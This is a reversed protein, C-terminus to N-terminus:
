KTGSAQRLRAADKIYRAGEEAKDIGMLLEGLSQVLKWDDPALEVARRMAQEAEPMRGLRGYGLALARYAFPNDPAIRLTELTVAIGEETQASDGLDMLVLSLRRMTMLDNPNREFALRSAAIADAQREEDILWQVYEDQLNVFTPNAAATERYWADAEEVKRQGRLIRGVGCALADSIGHREITGRLLAEGEDYRELASLLWARRLDIGPQQAPVIGFGGEGIASAIAYLRLAREAQAAMPPDLAVPNGSFVMQPPVTVRDDFWGALMGAANITASYGVGALMVIAAAAWAFGAGTLRGGRRLQLQHFRVNPNGALQWAKFAFFVVCAVVGSAFLFPLAFGITGRTAVFTLIALLAFGIEEGWTLDWTRPEPKTAARLTRLAGPKGFGFSLAENPCASVCDLCKMCGPDVVMGYDRVEEHVRVNSTCVATCHGCGECADNVKIRGVSWEDLPTFFGGYPCCYTCYGKNGLFYVTLFGTVLFFPISLLIGPVGHTLDDTIFAQTFGPWRLTPQAYPAIALRYVVPWLFMYCAMGLPVFLLLRSRFAHPRIGVKGMLWTCLDQLMIIHCGWGCFFRGVVLTSVLGIAFVVTGANVIGNKFTEMSESPEVASLTRGQIWWQVLHVVMLIQITALVIARRTGMTSHPKPSPTNAGVPGGAPLVTLSVSKPTGGTPLTRPHKPDCAM